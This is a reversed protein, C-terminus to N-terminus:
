RDGDAINSPVDDYLDDLTSSEAGKAPGESAVSADPVESFCAMGRGTGDVFDLLLARSQADFLADPTGLSAGGVFCIRECAWLSRWRAADQADADEGLAATLADRLTRATEVEFVHRLVVPLGARLVAPFAPVLVPSM